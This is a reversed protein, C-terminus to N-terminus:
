ACIKTFPCTGKRRPSTSNCCSPSCTTCSPGPRPAVEPPPQYELAAKLDDVAATLYDKGKDLHMEGREVLGVPDKPNLKLRQNMEALKLQLQPFASVTWINQSLVDGEHFILNGPVEKKRLKTHHMDGNDVNVACVEPPDDPNLGNKLPLYYINNSRWARDPRSVSRRKGSRKGGDILDLARITDKGVVLVKGNFVGAFYLDKPGRLDVM